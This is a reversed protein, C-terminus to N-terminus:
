AQGKARATNALVEVVCYPGPEWNGEAFAQAAAIADDVSTFLCRANAAFQKAARNCSLPSCEFGYGLSSSVADYGVVDYGTAVSLHASRARARPPRQEDGFIESWIRYGIVQFEQIVDIPVVSRALDPTDFLGFDNHRGHEIWDQPGSSICNSVSWIESVGPLGMAPTPHEIRKPFYGIFHFSM